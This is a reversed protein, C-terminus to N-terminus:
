HMVPVAMSNGLAKYRPGDPCDSESKNRYPIRTYNDPFGQLRECEMPTLRRVGNQMVGPGRDLAGLPYSVNSVDPDQRVNVCTAVFAANQTEGAGAGTNRTLTGAINSKEIAGIAKSEFVIPEERLCTLAPAVNKNITANTQGSEMVYNDNVFHSAGGFAHQNDQGRSKEFRAELTAATQAPWDPIYAGHNDLDTGPWGGQKSSGGICGAVGEAVKEQPPRCPTLDRCLSEPEFLIKAARQKGLSAIVFVRRRRQPVGFYQADLVRWACDYGFESLGAILNGFANTRDSLVGPVNEWVVWDPQYKQAMALFTITLNGRADALGQRLGAISFSQCPTGGVLVNISGTRIPWQKFQQMDGYNEIEPYHHKLVASPFKEIESFGVPQWGLPHWAVSAAEIGSCISLYKM